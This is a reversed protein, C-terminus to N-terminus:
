KGLFKDIAEATDVVLKGLGNADPLQQGTSAPSGAVRIYEVVLQHALQAAMARRMEAKSPMNPDRPGGLDVGAGPMFPPGELAGVM